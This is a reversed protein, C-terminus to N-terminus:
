FDLLRVVQNSPETCFFYTERKNSCTCNVSYIKRKLYIFDVSFRSCVQIVFCSGLVCERDSCSISTLRTVNGGADSLHPFTINESQTDTWVKVPPPPGWGLDSHPTGWGLHPCPYGMGPRFPPYGWGPSSPTGGQAPSYQTGCGRGPSSQTGGALVPHPGGWNSLCSEWM